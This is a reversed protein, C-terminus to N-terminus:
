KAAGAILAAYTEPDVRALEDMDAKIRDCISAIEYLEATLKKVAAIQEPTL